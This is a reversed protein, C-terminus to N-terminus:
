RAELADSGSPPRRANAAALMADVAGAASPWASATITPLGLRAAAAAIREDERGREVCAIVARARGARARELTAVDRPDGELLFPLFVRAVRARRPDRELVVADIGRNALEDAVAHGLPGAGCVIVHGEVSRLELRALVDEIRLALMDYDPGEERPRLSGVVTLLVALGGALIAAAAVVGAVGRPNEILDPSRVSDLVAGVGGIAYAIALAVAIAAAVIVSGAALRTM